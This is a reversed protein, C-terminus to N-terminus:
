VGGDEGTIKLKVGKIGAKIASLGVVVLRQFSWVVLM